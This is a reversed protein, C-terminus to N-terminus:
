ILINTMQIAEELKKLRLLKKKRRIIKVRFHLFIVFDICVNIKYNRRNNFKNFGSGFFEM